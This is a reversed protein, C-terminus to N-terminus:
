ELINNSNFMWPTDKKLCKIEMRKMVEIVEDAYNNRIGNFDKIIHFPRLAANNEAIERGIKKCFNDIPSCKAMGFRIEKAEDDYVAVFTYRPAIKPSNMYAHETIPNVTVQATDIQRTYYFKSVKSM